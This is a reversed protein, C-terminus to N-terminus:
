LKGSNEDYVDSTIAMDPAIVPPNTVGDFAICGEHDVDTVDGVLELTGMELVTRVALQLPEQEKAGANLDVLTDDFFRFVEAGVEYGVVQKQLSTTSKVELTQTDVIRLDAAVNVTYTRAKPGVGGIRLEAGGTSVNWNLETIGGVIFYDTQMITGGFYPLWPVTEGSPLRQPADAGLRRQDMYQLERDTVATDFREFLRVSDGLKGLATTVMLAGGQTIPYGGDGESYKGTYDQVTGVTLRPPTANARLREAMCQFAGELPTTNDTVPPGQIAPAEAPDRQFKEYSACGSLLAAAAGLTGLMRISSCAGFGASALSATKGYINVTGVM